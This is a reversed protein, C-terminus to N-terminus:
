REDGVDSEGILDDQSQSLNGFRGDGVEFEHLHYDDWGMSTQIIGHLKALTCDKVLVRRWIPPKVGNLTIKLQYVEAASKAPAGKAKPTSAALKSTRKPM